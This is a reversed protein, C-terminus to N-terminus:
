SYTTYTELVSTYAPMRQCVSPGFYINWCTSFHQAYKVTHYTPVNSMPWTRHVYTPMFIYWVAVTCYRVDLTNIAYSYRVELSDRAYRCRIHVDHRIGSSQAVYKIYLYPLWVTHKDYSSMRQDHASYATWVVINTSMQQCERDLVSSMPEIRYWYPIYWNQIKSPKKHYSFYKIFKWVCSKRKEWVCSHSLAM